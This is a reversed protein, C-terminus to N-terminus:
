IEHSAEPRGATLQLAQNSASASKLTARRFTYVRGDRILRVHIENRQIDVIRFVIVRQPTRIDDASFRVYINPGGAYWRGESFPNLEGEFLSGATFTQDPRFRFYITDGDFFNVAEWTGYLTEEGPGRYYREYVFVSTALTAICLAAATVVIWRQLRTWAHSHPFLM